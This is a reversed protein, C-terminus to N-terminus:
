CPTKLVKPLDVLVNHSECEQNELIKSVFSLYCIHKNDKIIILKVITEDNTLDHFDIVFADGVVTHGDDNM